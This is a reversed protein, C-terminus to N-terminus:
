LEPAFCARPKGGGGISNPGNNVVVQLLGALRGLQEYETDVGDLDELAYETMFQWCSPFGGMDIDSGRDTVYGGYDRLAIALNQIRPDTIFSLDATPPIAVLSGMLLNGSTAYSSYEGDCATAPWTWCNGDPGNKNLAQQPAKLTIAHKVGNVLEGRRILGAMASGGYARTGRYSWEDGEPMNGSDSLSYNKVLWSAGINSGTWFSLYTEYSESRDAKVFYIHGDDSAPPMVMDSPINFSYTQGSGSITGAYSPKANEVIVLNDTRSGLCGFDNWSNIWSGYNKFTPSTPQISIEEYV